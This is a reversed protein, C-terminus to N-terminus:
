NISMVYAAVNSMDTGSVLGGPMGGGGNTIQTKVKDMTLPRGKLQPGVGGPWVYSEKTKTGLAQPAAAHGLSLLFVPTAVYPYHFVYNTQAKLERARLPVGYENTLLARAYARPRADAAWATSIM